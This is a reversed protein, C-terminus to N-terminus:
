QNSTLTPLSTQLRYWGFLRYVCLIAIAPLCIASILYRINNLNLVNHGSLLSIFAWLWEWISPLSFALVAILGLTRFIGIPLVKKQLVTRNLQLLVILGFGIILIMGGNSVVQLSSFAIDPTIADTQPQNSQRNMSQAINLGLSYIMDTLIIWIPFATFLRSM